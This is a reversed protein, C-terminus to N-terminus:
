RSRLRDSGDKELLGVWPFCALSLSLSRGISDPSVRSFTTGVVKEAAAVRRFLVSFSLLFSVDRPVNDFTSSKKYHTTM